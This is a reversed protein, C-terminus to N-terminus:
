RGEPKMVSFDIDELWVSVEEGKRKLTVVKLWQSNNLDPFDERYHLGRSEERILTSRALMELIDVANLSEIGEVWEMNFVEGNHRLGIYETEKRLTEIEDIAKKLNKENRELLHLYKNLIDQIKVKIELPNSYDAGKRERMPIVRNLIEKVDSSSASLITSTENCYRVASKAAITGMALFISIPNGALTYAGESGGSVEGAVFLGPINSICNEDIAIGGISEMPAPAMEIGDKKIDVGAEFLTEIWKQSGISNFYDQIINEPLHRFSLYIGKHPSCRGAAIEQQIVIPQALKKRDKHYKIFDIGRNNYIKGALEYRLTTAWDVQGAILPPWVPTNAYFDAFEIDRLAAGARFAMAVGDGTLSPSTTTFRYLGMFGGTALITAKAEMILFRGTKIDLGVAGVTQGDKVLLDLIMMDDVIEIPRKKIQHSLVRRYEFGGAIGPRIFLPMRSHRPGPLREQAYRGAIKKYRVNWKALKDFVHVIEHTLKLALKQHNLYQGVKIMDATHIEPSDPPYLAVNFGGGAMWSAAGDSGFPGKSVISVKAGSDSAEIASMIGAVGAGIVLVDTRHRGLSQM